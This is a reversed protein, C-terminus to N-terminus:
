SRLKELYKLDRELREKGYYQKIYDYWNMSSMSMNCLRCIPLLNSSHDHGGNKKSLIHGAEFSFPTIVKRKCCPCFVPPEPFKTYQYWVQERIAKPIKSPNNKISNHKLYRQQQYLYPIFVKRLPTTNRIYKLFIM